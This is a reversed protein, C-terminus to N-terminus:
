KKEKKREDNDTISKFFFIEFHQAAVLQRTPDPYSIMGPVSGVKKKIGPV